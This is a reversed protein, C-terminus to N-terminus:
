AARGCAREAVIQLEYDRELVDTVVGDFQTPVRQAAPVRDKKAAVHIRIALQDTLQGGVEKYGVDVATVGPQSLYRSEIEEKRALIEEFSPM